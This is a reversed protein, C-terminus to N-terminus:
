LTRQGGGGCRRCVAPKQHTVKGQQLTQTEKLQKEERIGPEMALRNSTHSHPKLLRMKSELDLEYFRLKESDGMNRCIRSM